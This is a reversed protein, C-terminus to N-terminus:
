STPFRLPLGELEMVRLANTTTLQGTQLRYDFDMGGDKVRECFHYNAIQQPFADALALLELDHTSILGCSDSDRLTEILARSAVLRERSNTGKFIEDLLFFVAQGQEIRELIRKLRRVEALFFSIGDALSDELRISTWIEPLSCSLSAACVPAGTRALVWNIGITRLFTSKGSMNSGTLLHVIGRGSIAYDNTVRRDRPILPHGLGHAQFFIGQDERFRPFRFEEFLFAFNALSSLAELEAVTDLWQPLHHGFRKRWQALRHTHHVDWQFLANLLLHALGNARQELARTIRDLEELGTLARSEALATQSQRLRQSQFTKRSFLQLTPRLPILGALHRQFGHIFNRQIPSLIFFVALQLGLLGLWPIWTLQFAFRALLGTLAVASLLRTSWLLVPKVTVPLPMRLWPAVSTATLGTEAQNATLVSLRLRFRTEAALESIAHQRTQIEDSPGPEQIWQTLFVAANPLHTNDLLKLLGTPGTLDLDRAFPHDDPFTVGTNQDIDATRCALRHLDDQSMKEIKACKEQFQFLSDHRAMLLLFVVLFALTGMVGIGRFRGDVAMSISIVILSFVAFRLAALGNIATGARRGLRQSWKIRRQYLQERNM